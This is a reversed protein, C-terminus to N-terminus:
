DLRPIHNGEIAYEIFINENELRAEQVKESAKLEPYKEQIKRRAREVSKFSIPRNSGQKLIDYYRKSLENPAIKNLVVLMLYYDDDRAEPYQELCEKVINETTYLTNKKM